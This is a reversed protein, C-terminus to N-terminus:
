IWAEDPQPLWTEAWTALALIVPLLAAGKDTLVYEIRVPTSPTVTRTLVGEVELERLREALLRDSLGPVARAIENFRRNGCILARVIAGTWRRGVLEVARTYRPCFEALGEPTEPM